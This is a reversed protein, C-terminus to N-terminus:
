SIRLSSHVSSEIVPVPSIHILYVIPGNNRLLKREYSDVRLQFIDSESFQFNYSMLSFAFCDGCSRKETTTVIQKAKLLPLFWFDVM